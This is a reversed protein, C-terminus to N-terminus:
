SVCILNTIKSIILSYNCRNHKIIYLVFIRGLISKKEGRQNGFFLRKFIVVGVIEIYINKIRLDYRADQCVPAGGGGVHPPQQPPAHPRRGRPQQPPRPQPLCRGEGGGGEPAETHHLPTVQLSTVHPPTKRQLTVKQMKKLLAKWCTSVKSIWPLIKPVTVTFSYPNFHM